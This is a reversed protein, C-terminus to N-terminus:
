LFDKIFGLWYYFAATCFVVIWYITKTYTWARTERLKM